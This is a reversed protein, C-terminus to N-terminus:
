ICIPPMGKEQPTPDLVFLQIQLKEPTANERKELIGRGFGLRKEGKL